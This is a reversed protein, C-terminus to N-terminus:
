AEEGMDECQRGIDDKRRPRDEEFGQGCECDGRFEELGLFDFLVLGRGVKLIASFDSVERQVAVVPTGLIEPLPRAIVVDALVNRRMSRNM